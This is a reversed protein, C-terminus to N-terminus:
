DQSKAILKHSIHCRSQYVRVQTTRFISFYFFFSLFIFYLSFLFYFIFDMTLSRLMRTWTNNRCVIIRIQLISRSSIRNSIQYRISGSQQLSLIKSNTLLSFRTYPQCLFFKILLKQEIQGSYISFLGPGHQLMINGGRFDM